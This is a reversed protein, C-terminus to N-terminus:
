GVRIGNVLFCLFRYFFNLFIKLTNEDLFISIILEEFKEKYTGKARVFFYSTFKMAFAADTNIGFLNPKEDSSEFQIESVKKKYQPEPLQDFDPMFGCDVKSTPWYELDIPLVLFLFKDFNAGPM